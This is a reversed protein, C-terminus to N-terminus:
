GAGWSMAIGAVALIILAIEALGAIAFGLGRKNAAAVYGQMYLFRGIVWVVGIAAPLWALRTFYTTSIWLAILFIPLQELTNMQVRFIREFDPNGTVAPAEIKYKARAGGVRLVTVFYLVVALMSVAASMLYPQSTLEM